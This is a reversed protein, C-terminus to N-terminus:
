SRLESPTKTTMALAHVGGALEEALISYVLQQRKVRSMGEFTSSVIEVAFHTGGAAAAPNHGAHLASQDEITLHEPSLAATLKQKILDAYSM